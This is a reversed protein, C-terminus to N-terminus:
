AINVMGNGNESVTNGERKRDKRGMKNELHDDESIAM